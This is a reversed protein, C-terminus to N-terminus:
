RLREVTNSTIFIIGMKCKLVSLSSLTVQRFEYSKYTLFNPNWHLVTNSRSNHPTGKGAGEEDTEQTGKREGRRRGEKM